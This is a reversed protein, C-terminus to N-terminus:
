IYNKSPLLSKYVKYMGLSNLIHIINTDHGFYMYLSRDPKLTSQIKSKMRDFIIKLLYGAKIKKMEDSYTQLEYWFLALNEFDGGPSMLNWAWDPISSDFIAIQNIFLFEYFQNNKTIKGNGKRSNLTFLM